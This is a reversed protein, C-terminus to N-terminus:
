SMKLLIGKYICRVVWKNLREIVKCWDRLSYMSIVLSFKLFDMKQQLTFLYFFHLIEKCLLLICLNSNEWGKIIISMTMESYRRPSNHPGVALSLNYCLKESFFLTETYWELNPQTRSNLSRSSLLLWQICIFLADMPVKYNGSFSGLADVFDGEERELKHSTLMYHSQKWSVGILTIFLFWQAGWLTRSKSRLRPPGASGRQCRWLTLLPLVGLCVGCHKTLQVGWSNRVKGDQDAPNSVRVKKLAKAM